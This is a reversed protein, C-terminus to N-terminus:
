AEIMKSQKVTESTTLPLKMEISFIDKDSKIELSYKYGYLLQLRKEVNKLGIGGLKNSNTKKNKMFNNVIYFALENGQVVIRINIQAIGIVEASGHKFANELFPLMLLPAIKKHNVEGEVLCIVNLRKGYRLKELEIYNNLMEIERKLWINPANCEQLMYKLLDSLKEVVEPAKNSQKLTLAYLNNLTNFLFHPHIQSKLLQLEATVNEQMLQRNAQEKQYWHRFFKIIAAFGTITLMLFYNNATFVQQFSPFIQFRGTRFPVLVFYRFAYVFLLASVLFIVLSYLFNKTKGLWLDPLVYYLFSYTILMQPLLFLTNTQM